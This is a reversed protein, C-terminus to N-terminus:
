LINDSLLLLYICIFSMMKSKLFLSFAIICYFKFDLYIHLMSQKWSMNSSNRMVGTQWQHLLQCASWYTHGFENALAHCQCNFANKTVKRHGDTVFVDKKLIVAKVNKLLKLSKYLSLFIKNRYLVKMKKNSKVCWVCAVMM